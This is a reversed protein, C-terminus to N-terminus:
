YEISVTISYVIAGRIAARKTLEIADCSTSSSLIEGFCDYVCGGGTWSAACRPAAAALFVAVDPELLCLGGVNIVM